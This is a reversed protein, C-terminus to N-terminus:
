GKPPFRWHSCGCGFALVAYVLLEFFSEYAGAVYTTAFRTYFADAIHIEEDRFRAAM